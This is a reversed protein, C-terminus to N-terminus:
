GTLREKEERTEEIYKDIKFGMADLRSRDWLLFGWERLDTYQQLGHVLIESMEMWMGRTEQDLDENSFTNTNQVWTERYQELYSILSSQTPPCFWSFKQEESASTQFIQVIAQLDLTLLGNICNIRELSILACDFEPIAIYSSWMYCILCSKSKGTISLMRDFLFDHLCATQENEWASFFSFFRVVDHNNEHDVERRLMGFFELRYLARHVRTRENQSPSPGFGAVDWDEPPTKDVSKMDWSQKVLLRRPSCLCMDAFYEVCNHRKTAALVATPTWAIESAAARNRLLQKVINGALMATNNSRGLLSLRNSIQYAIMAEPWVQRPVTKSLVQALITEKYDTWAYHLAPCSRSASKLDEIDDLAVLVMARLEIPLQDM